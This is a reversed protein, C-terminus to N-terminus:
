QHRTGARRIKFLGLRGRLLDVEQSSQTRNSPCKRSGMDYRIERVGNCWQFLTMQVLGYESVILRPVKAFLSLLILLGQELVTVIITTTIVSLSPFCNRFFCFRFFHLIHCHSYYFLIHHVFLLSCLYWVCVQLTARKRRLFLCISTNIVVFIM